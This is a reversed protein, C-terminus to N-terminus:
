KRDLSVLNHKLAFMVLGVRTKVQLKEFLADRYGDITRPSLCMQDAIEKYTLESCVLELFRIERQSLNGSNSDPSGEKKQVKHILTGTVVDSFYYGKRYIDELAKKLDAPEADKLIYGRAGAKLMKIVAAENDYMSLALVKIQPYNSSIWETTEYGDKVPMNIDMLVIDPIQDKGIKEIAEMGNSADFIVQMNDFTGILKSIGNRILGHDDVLAITIKENELGTTNM